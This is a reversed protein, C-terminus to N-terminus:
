GEVSPHLPVMPRVARSCKGIDAWTSLLPGGDVDEGLSPCGHPCLPDAEYSKGPTGKIPKSYLPVPRRPPIEVTRSFMNIKPPSVKQQWLQVVGSADVIAICGGSNSLDFAATGDAPSDRCYM